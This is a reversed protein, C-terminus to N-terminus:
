LLWEIPLISLLKVGWRKLLGTEPESDYRKEEGSATREIWQLGAGDPAAQAPPRARGPRVRPRDPM